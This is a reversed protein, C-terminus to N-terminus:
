WQEITYHHPSMGSINAVQLEDTRGTYMLVINTDPSIKEVQPLSIDILTTGPTGVKQYQTPTIRDLFRALQDVFTMGNPCARGGIPIVEMCTSSARMGQVTPDGLVALMIHNPLKQKSLSPSTYETAQAFSCFGPALVVLLINAVVYPVLAITRMHDYKDFVEFLLTHRLDSVTL